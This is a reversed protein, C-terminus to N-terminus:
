VDNDTMTPGGKGSELFPKKTWQYDDLDISPAHAEVVAKQENPKIFEKWEENTFWNVLDISNDAILFHNGDELADEDLTYKGNLLDTTFIEVFESVSKAILFAVGYEDDVLIIQGFTGTTNPVLDMRISVHSGNFAICLWDSNNINQPNIQPSCKKIPYPPTKSELDSIISEIPYFPM